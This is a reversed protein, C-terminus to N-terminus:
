RVIKEKLEKLKEIRTEMSLAPLHCIFQGPEWRGKEATIEEPNSIHGYLEPLFSNFSPHSQIYITNDLPFRSCYAEFADQECKFMGASIGGRMYDIVKMSKVTKRILFIGMNMGESVVIDADESMRIPKYSTIISDADMVIAIDGFDLRDIQEFKHLGNYVDYSPVRLIDLQYKNKRCYEM